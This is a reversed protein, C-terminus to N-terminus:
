QVSDLGDVDTDLVALIWEEEDRSASTTPVGDVHDTATSAAFETVRTEPLAFTYWCYNSIAAANQLEPGRPLGAKNHWVHCSQILKKDLIHNFVNVALMKFLLMSNYSADRTEPFVITKWSEADHSWAQVCFVGDSSSNGAPPMPPPLSPAAMITGPSPEWSGPTTVEDLEDDPDQEILIHLWKERRIRADDTLAAGKPSTGQSHHLTINKYSYFSIQHGIAKKIDLVTAGHGPYKVSAIIIIWSQLETAWANFVAKYNPRNAGNDLLITSGSNQSTAMSYRACAERALAFARV